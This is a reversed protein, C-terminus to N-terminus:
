EEGKKFKERYEEEPFLDKILRFMILDIGMKLLSDEEFPTGKIAKLYAVSLDHMSIEKKWERRQQDFEEMTIDDDYNMINLEIKM